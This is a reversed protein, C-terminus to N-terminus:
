FFISSLIQTWIVTDLSGFHQVIFLSSDSDSDSESDSESDSDTNHCAVGIILSKAKTAMLICAHMCVHVCACEVDGILCRSDRFCAYM